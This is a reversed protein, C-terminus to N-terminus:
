DITMLQGLLGAWVYRTYQWNYATLCLCLALFPWCLESLHLMHWLAPKRIILAYSNITPPQSQNGIRM